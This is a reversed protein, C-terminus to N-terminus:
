LPLVCCFKSEGLIRCENNCHFNLGGIGRLSRRREPDSTTGDERVETKGDMRLPATVDFYTTDSRLPISLGQRNNGVFLDISACEM